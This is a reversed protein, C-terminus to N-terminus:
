SVRRRSSDLKVVKGTRLDKWNVYNKSRSTMLFHMQDAAEEMEDLYEKYQFAKQAAEKAEIKSLIDGRASDGTFVRALVDAPDDQESFYFVTYPQGVLPNHFVAYPLTDEGSRLAPPIWRLELTPDFDKLIEALRQIKSSVFAGAEESYVAPDSM